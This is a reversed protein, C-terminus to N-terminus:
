KPHSFDSSGGNMMVTLQFMRRGASEAISVDIEGMYKRACRQINAMGIGHVKKDKKDSVPLGTEENISIDGAFDNTIEVFFLNGKLYSCLVVKKKGEVKECAEVANELANNLIIGIDYADIKQKAPYTFDTEFVIQKRAAEQRKQHVIIDTIPNGTQASFDLRNITDEMKGIYDALEEGTEGVTKRVFATINGLHSRMDHRLGRMDAYIEQIENVERRMQQVQNELIVCKKEEESLQVLKQFLIVSSIIMGLLLICILPIWFKTASVRDYIVVTMGNEVSVVMMKITCAVCLAVVSPFLLYINEYAQLQYDRRVFRKGIMKIYCLVIQIYVAICLILFTRNFVKTLFDIQELSVITGQVIWHNLVKNWADYLVVYLVSVIYRSIETGAVFSLTVFLHKARDGRCLATVLCLFIIIHVAIGAAGDFPYVRDVLQFMAVQVTFYAITWLAVTSNGRLKKLSLLRAAYIYGLISNALYVAISFLGMEFM